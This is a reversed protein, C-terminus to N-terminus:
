LLQVVNTDIRWLVTNRLIIKLAYTTFLKFLNLCVYTKM